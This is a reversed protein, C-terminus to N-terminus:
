RLRPFTSPKNTISVSDLRIQGFKDLSRDTDIVGDHVNHLRTHFNCQFDINASRFRHLACFVCMYM